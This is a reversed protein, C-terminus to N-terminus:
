LIKKRYSREFDSTVKEAQGDQFAKAYAAPVTAEPPKPIEKWYEEPNLPILSNQPDWDDPSKTRSMKVFDLPLNDIGKVYKDVYQAVNARTIVQHGSLMMREALAFEYGQAADYVRAVAYAGQWFPFTAASALLDGRDILEAAQSTGNHGVVKVNRRGADKLASLAGVAMDDNLALVGDFRRNKTMLDEMASRGDVRSWKGALQGLLEVDPYDELAQMAAATRFTDATGGPFGTLMVVSGKGGMEEMLSKAVDYYSRFDYPATFGVAYKGEEFPFYWPPSEGLFYTNVQDANARKALVPIPSDNPPVVTMAKVGRGTATEYQSVIVDPKQENAFGQYDFGLAKAAQKTGAIHSTFYEDATTTFFTAMKGGGEAAAGGDRSCASLLGPFALGAGLVASRHLFVRRSTGEEQPMGGVRQPAKERSM